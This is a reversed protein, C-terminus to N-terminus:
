RTSPRYYYFTLWPRGRLTRYHLYTLSLGMEISSDVQSEQLNLEILCTICSAHNIAHFRGFLASQGTATGLWMRCNSWLSLTHDNQELVCVCDQLFSLFEGFLVDDELQDSENYFVRSGWDDDPTDDDTFFSLTTDEHNIDDMISM